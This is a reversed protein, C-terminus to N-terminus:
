EHSRSEAEQVSLLALLVVLTLAIRYYFFSTFFLGRVCLATFGALFFPGVDRKRYRSLGLFLISLMLGMYAIAGVLGKEVLILSYTSTARVTSLEEDDMASDYALNFNGGGVGAWPKEKWLIVADSMQQFRGHTSRVQTSTKSMSLTTMVEQRVPLLGVCGLIITVVMIVVKNENAKKDKLFAGIIGMGYFVSAAVYAGRSLCLGIAVLSLAAALLAVVMIWKKTKTLALNFPFPLLCLLFVVWDNIPMGGPFFRQKFEVLSIPAFIAFKKKFSIFGVITIISFIASLGSLGFDLYYRTKESLAHGRFFFWFFAALVIPFSSRISNSRYRSFLISLIESLIVALVFIDALNVKPPYKRIGKRLNLISLGICVPILVLWVVTGFLGGAIFLCLIIFILLEKRDM